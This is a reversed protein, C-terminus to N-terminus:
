AMSFHADQRRRLDLLTADPAMELDSLRILAGALVKRALRRNAVLYYPTLYDASLPSAPRMEAAVGEITHHHGKAELLEGAALDRTAVAALDVRPAYDAGYASHGLGVLDLISTAAELGLLHRPLYIMASLGDGSVVHGKEALVQWSPRDQCRVTVFVGGAFSAEDPARLHHFVDLRRVGSLLGDLGHNSLLAAVEPVRAVPAHFPPIDACLGTANAVLTMECLDPVAQLRYHQGLIAARGAAVARLGHHGPSWWAALEPAHMPVGNSVVTGRAADFVFDYESSKGAALIEFGLTEAWTVMEILLSPQDGDVPTIGVGKSRALHALFPGAVSDAEKTVLLVHRAAEISALAHRAAAEPHGTAEVVLDFPLGLVNELRDAAVLKGNEHAIRSQAATHCECIDVPDYGVARFAAASAEVTLDVAIRANLRSIHRAQALFSQGFAGSGILCTEIPASIGKYRSHYNM